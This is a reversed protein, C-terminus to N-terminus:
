VPFLCHYFCHSSIHWGTSSAELLCFVCKTPWIETSCKSQNIKYPCVSHPFVANLTFWKYYIIRGKITSSISDPLLDFSGAYSYKKIFCESVGNKLTNDLTVTSRRTVKINVHIIGGCAPHKQFMDQQKQLWIEWGSVMPNCKPNFYSILKSVTTCIDYNERALM